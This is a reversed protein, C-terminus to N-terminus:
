SWDRYEKEHAQDLEKHLKELRIRMAAEDDIAKTIEAQTKGKLNIKQLRRLQRKVDNVEDHKDSVKIMSEFRGLFYM